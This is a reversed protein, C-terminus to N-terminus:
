YLLEDYDSDYEYETDEDTDYELLDDKTLGQKGKYCARNHAAIRLKMKHRGNRSYRDRMRPMKYDGEVKVGPPPEVPSSPRVISSWSTVVPPPTPAPAPAPAPESKKQKIRLGTLCEESFHGLKGCEECKISMTKQKNEPCYKITHGTKQCQRCRYSLLTPCVTNGSPDKDKVHHSSWMTEPKRADRCVACCVRRVYTNSQQSNM